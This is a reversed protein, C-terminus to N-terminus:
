GGSANAGANASASANPWGVRGVAPLKLALDMPDVGFTLGLINIELGEEPGVLFGL